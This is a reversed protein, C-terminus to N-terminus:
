PQRALLPTWASVIAALLALICIISVVTVTAQYFGLLGTGFGVGLAAVSAGLYVVLNFVSFVGGRQQASVISSVLEQSGLYTLGQGFGALMIGLLFMTLTTLPTAVVFLILGAIMAIPGIVLNRRLPWTRCLMQTLASTGLLAFVVVGGVARNQIHLLNSALSPGLASILGVTGFASFVAVSALTFPRRIARPIELRATSASAGTTKVTEPITWLGVFAPILLMVLVLYVLITPWPAYQALTGSVLPAIAQSSVIAVTAVLTARQVNGSPEVEALTAVATGSLAGFALGQLLRAVILWGVGQALIFVLAGAIALAVGLLLVPRRGRVDSLPGLFLLAPFVSVAVVAFVVTLMGTSFHWLQQYLPYLPAPLNNGMITMSLAYAVIWFAQRRKSRAQRDAKSEVGQLHVADQMRNLSDEEGKTFGM